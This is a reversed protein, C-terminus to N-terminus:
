MGIHSTHGSGTLTTESLGMMDSTSYGPGGHEAVDLGALEEERSVRLLNAAKLIGFLSGAVLVVFAFVAVVGIIQYSIQDTGGGRLLGVEEGFIGVALTGFAGCVGHVSIAGVPDDVYKDLFLVSAVVLIGAIGGTLLAWTGSIIDPGATIGVLGALVGNATMAVDPKGSYVWIAGMAFLGGAAASLTTNLAVLAISEEAALVSGPNFGYWGVWLIFMGLVAFPISHGPIARPKGDPGYKGLRPGIIIAGMLGAWAGVSHVVTSGAFDYFGLDSLWGNGSWQWHVVIPYIIGAMLTSVILYGPFKMREAICGSVITAATGAFAAQFLFNVAETGSDTANGGFFYTGWGTISNGDAGYALSYGIIFFVTSGICFDMINKMMINSVNKGRTLGAEVLAFGPQMLIVLVAALLLFVVDLISKLEETSLRVVEQTDSVM